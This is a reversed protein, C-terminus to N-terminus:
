QPMLRVQYYPTISGGFSLKFAGRNPSNIGELDFKLISYDKHQITQMAGILLATAYEKGYQWLMYAVNSHVGVALVDSKYQFIHLKDGLSKIIDIPSNGHKNNYQVALYVPDGKEILRIVPAADRIAQQRSNNCEAYCPILFSTYKIDIQFKRGSFYNYWQFPRMDKFESSLNFEIEKYIRTIEGIIFVTIDYEAAHRQATNKDEHHPAFLIGSHIVHPAQIINGNEIVGVFGGIIQNGKMVYYAHANFSSLFAVTSFISGQPSSEVFRDWKEDLQTKIFKM